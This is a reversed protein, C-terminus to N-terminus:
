GRSCGHTSEVLFLDVTCTGVTADGSVAAVRLGYPVVIPSNAFTAVTHVATVPITLTAAAVEPTRMLLQSFITREPNLYVHVSVVPSGDDLDEGVVHIGGYLPGSNNVSNASDAALSVHDLVRIGTNLGFVTMPDGTYETAPGDVQFEIERIDFQALAV